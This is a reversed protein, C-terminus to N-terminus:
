KGALKPDPQEREAVQLAGAAIESALEAVKSAHEAMARWKIHHWAGRMRMRADDLEFFLRYFDERAM